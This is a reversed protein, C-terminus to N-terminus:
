VREERVGRKDGEYGKGSRRDEGVGRRDVVERGRGREDGGRNEGVGRRDVEERGGERRGRGEGERGGNMEFGDELREKGFEVGYYKEVKNKGVKCEKEGEREREVERLRM